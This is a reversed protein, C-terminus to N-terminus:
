KSNGDIVAKLEDIQKQQDKVAEILVAVMKEYKVAKYGDDRTDVIEPFVKEVEQAVVGIDNNGNFQEHKDNWTFTYGTLSKVKDIPNTIPKLNDKYREDSSAYAVVDEGVNLTKVVGLGGAIKVTGTTKSTSNVASTVDIGNTFTTQNKMSVVDNNDIAIAMTAHSTSQGISFTDSSASYSLHGAGVLTNDGNVATMRMKVVNSSTSDGALHLSINSANGAGQGSLTMLPLGAVGDETRTSNNERIKAVDTNIRDVSLTKDEQNFTWGDDVHSTYYGTSTGSVFTPYYTGASAATIKTTNAQQAQTASTATAANGSCAAATTATAANGSINTQDSESATSVGTVHGNSDLTISQLYTRGSNSVNSTAQTISEHQTYSEAAPITTSNFANAGFTYTQNTAGSVSFTLVNGSKTIGDLYYNTNNYNGTHINTSGQDTTWDIIQNGSPITPTGSLSGYAGDFADTIGYGDITTPKSTLSAFTHSHSSPAFTTPKGTVSSYTPAPVTVSGGNTLSIVRGVISLAQSDTNAIVAGDVYAKTAADQASTPDTLDTIKCNVDLASANSIRLISDTADDVTFLGVNTTGGFVIGEGPDNFTLQNVGGINYNSGTIGGNANTLGDIGADAGIKGSFSKVGSITQASAKTVLGSIDTAGTLTTGNATVTGAFTAGTNNLVLWNDNLPAAASTLEPNGQEVQTRGFAIVQDGIFAIGHDNTSNGPSKLYIFDDTNTNWSQYLIDHNSALNWSSQYMELLSGGATTLIEDHINLTGSIDANGNIDLGTATVSGAFTANNSADIGLPIQSTAVNEFFLSNTNTYIDFEGTASGNRKLKLQDNNSNRIIDLSANIVVDGAFTTNSGISITDDNEIKFPTSTHTTLSITGTGGSSGLTINTSGQLVTTSSIKYSSAEVTGSFTATAAKLDGDVRSSGAYKVIRVGTYRGDSVNSTKQGLEAYVANATSGPDPLFLHFSNTWNDGASGQQFTWVGPVNRLWTYDSHDKLDISYSNEAVEFLSHGNLNTDNGMTIAGTMTGGALPLHGVQSYTYATNGKTSTFADGTTLVGGSTYTMRNTAGGAPRWELNGGNYSAIDWVTTSADKLRIYSWDSGGGEIEIRADTASDVKFGLPYTSTVTGTTTDNVDSRLYKSDTQTTIDFSTLYSGAVQAGINTRANSKETNTLGQSATDVRVRNGLATSVTTSFSADDGLANALEDLTNLAAPASNVVNAVATDVYSTSALGAISPISTNGALATTSTNGIELNSTGYGQAKVFATTAIQTSNTGTGATPAAPTGTFTPSAIKGYRGDGYTETVLYQWDQWSTDRYRYALYKQNNGSGRTALQFGYDGSGQTLTLGTAHNGGFPSNTAGTFRYLGRTTLTDWDASSSLFNAFALENLWTTNATAGTGGEAVALATGLTLAGSIDANGDIDLSDAQLEGTIEVGANVTTLKTGGSYYLTTGGNATLTLANQFQNGTENHHRINFSNSGALTYVDVYKAGNGTFNLEGTLSISAASLSNGQTYNGTGTNTTYGYGLIKDEVAASTMIHADDNTFEGSDDVGTITNGDLTFGTTTIVGSNITGINKLNRSLDIFQTSGGDGIYLGNNAATADAGYFRFENRNTWSTDNSPFSYSRWGGEAAIVVEEAGLNLNDKIVSKVDGALIAVGDDNGLIVAGNNSVRSLITLETGSRDVRLLPVESSYEGGATTPEYDFLIYGSTTGFTMKSNITTAPLTLSGNITPSVLVLNTNSSGLTLTVSSASDDAKIIGSQEFLIDVNNAGDGIYVDAAGDGLLIDGVANSLVLNNGSQEIKGANVGATTKFQIDNGALLNIDNLFKTM